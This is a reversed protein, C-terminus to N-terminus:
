CNVHAQHFNGISFCTCLTTRNKKKKIDVSHLELVQSPTWLRQSIEQWDCFHIFLALALEWSPHCVRGGNPVGLYLFSSLANSPFLHCLCKESPSQTEKLNQKLTWTRNLHFHELQPSPLGSHVKAWQCPNEGWTFVNLGVAKPVDNHQQCRWDSNAKAELVLLGFFPLRLPHFNMNWWMFANWLCM